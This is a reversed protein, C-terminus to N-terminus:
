TPSVPSLAPSLHRSKVLSTDVCHGPHALTKIEWKFAIHKYSLLLDALQKQQQRSLIDLVRIELISSKIRDRYSLLVTQLTLPNRFRLSMNVTANVYTSKNTHLKVQM